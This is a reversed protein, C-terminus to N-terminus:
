ERARRERSVWIILPLLSPMAATKLNALAIVAAAPACVGKTITQASGNLNMRRAFLLRRM